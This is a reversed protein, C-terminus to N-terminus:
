VSVEVLKVLLWSIFLFSVSYVPIFAFKSTNIPHLIQTTINNGKLQEFLARDKEKVRMNDLAFMFAIVPLVYVTLIGFINFDFGLGDFIPFLIFGTFLFPISYIFLATALIRKRWYGLAGIKTFLEKTEGTLIRTRALVTAVIVGIISLCNALGILALTPIKNRLDRFMIWGVIIGTLVSSVILLFIGMIVPYEAVTSAIFTRFPPRRSIWLDKTLFKSPADIEIKTYNLSSFSDRIFNDMPETSRIHGNVYYETTTFPRIDNFIRPSVHGLIRLTAPVHRSGYVSTPMLPFYLDNTPFSVFVGRESQDSIYNGPRGLSPWPDDSSVNADSIWSVVFSFDEGIYNELVPIAGRDINLGLGNLYDYLGGAKKATIIESTIGEKVIHEHVIVGGTGIINSLNESDSFVVSSKSASGSFMGMFLLPYIQTAQISARIGDLNSKASKSLDEGTLNPIDKLIDIVIRGPDAPIPFIWVLDSNGPNDIGISLIMNQFGNDYSILANQSNENSYIVKSSDDYPNAYPDVAIVMGDALAPAVPMFFMSLLLVILITPFSSFNVTLRYLHSYM